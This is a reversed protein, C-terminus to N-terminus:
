SLLTKFPYIHSKKLYLLLNLIITLQLLFVTKYNYDKNKAVLPVLCLVCETSPIMQNMFLCFAFHEELISVLDTNLRLVNPTYSCLFGHLGSKQFLLTWHGRDSCQLVWRLLCHRCLYKYRLRSVVLRWLM